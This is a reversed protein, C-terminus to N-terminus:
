LGEEKATDQNELKDNTAGNGFQQLAGIITSRINLVKQNSGAAQLFNSQSGAGISFGFDVAGATWSKKDTGIVSIGNSAKVDFAADVLSTAGLSLWPNKILGGLGSLGVSLGDVKGLDGTQVWQGIFNGAGNSIGSTIAGAFLSGSGLTLITTVTGVMLPIGKEVLGKKGSWSHNVNGGEAGGEWSDHYMPDKAIDHANFLNYSNQTVSKNSIGNVKGKSDFSRTKNINETLNNDIETHSYKTITQGKGNVYKNYVYIKELGELEVCNIVNNESFAYPSNAPYSASL